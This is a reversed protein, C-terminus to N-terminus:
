KSRLSTWGWRQRGRGGRWCMRNAGVVVADDVAVEVPKAAVPLTGMGFLAIMVFTCCKLKM